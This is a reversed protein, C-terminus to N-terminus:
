IADHDRRKPDSRAPDVKPIFEPCLFLFIPKYGFDRCSNLANEVIRIGICAIFICAIFAERVSRSLAKMTM